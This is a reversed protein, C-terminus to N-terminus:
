GKGVLLGQTKPRRRIFGEELTAWQRYIMQM